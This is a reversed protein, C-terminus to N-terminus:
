CGGSRTQRTKSLLTESYFSKPFAYPRFREPSYGDLLRSGMLRLYRYDYAAIADPAHSSAFHDLLELITLGLSYLDWSIKIDKTLLTRRLRNSDTSLSAFRLKDPHAYARTFTITTEEDSNTLNVASGLDSIIARGQGVLVNSPKLDNHAVNQSFLFAMGNIIDRLVGLLDKVTAKPRRLFSSPTIAGEVFDMVYFARSLDGDIISNAYYLKIVNSHTLAALTKLEKLILANLLKQRDEIPRAIKLARYVKRDRTELVNSLNVDVVRLVVGSGGRDIATDFEYKSALQTAIQPLIRELQALEVHLEAKDENERPEAYLRRLSDLLESSLASPAPSLTPPIM